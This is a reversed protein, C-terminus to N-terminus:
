DAGLVTEAVGGRDVAGIDLGDGPHCPGHVAADEHGIAGVEVTQALAPLSEGGKRDGARGPLSQGPRAGKRPHPPHGHDPGQANDSSSEAIARNSNSDILAPIMAPSAMTFVAGNPAM